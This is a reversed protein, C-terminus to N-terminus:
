RLRRPAVLERRRVGAALADSRAEWSLVGAMAADIKDPSGPREKCLTWMPRGEDDKVNLASRCANRIHVAMVPDGDNTVDGARMATAYNRVAWAIARPRNTHWELVRKDTWRGQWREVLREIRQPDIYVRWVDWRAFAEVMTGDVRDFDHEYDADASVPREVIALPWQHGTEVDTAVVALADDFRAGDVGITVINGSPVQRSLTLGSWRHRDFARGLSVTAQNLYYRRADSPDTDPDQIEDAIREVDVWGGRTRSSEGYAVELADLLALRDSLDKVDPTERTDYLIGSSGKEAARATLDAVSGDAPEPANQLEYTWGDGKGVNRRLTAALAIGGNARKWAETQDLVAHSLPQGERSGAAATVPEIRGPRGHLYVRSRGLDIGHRSLTQDNAALREYLWVMVNDTQDESVAALQVWPSPHPRGVPQGDNGWESFLVPHVLECYAVYGGEPSKGAGKPRRLAARRVRRRGTRPDIEYLRVLRGRQENTLTLDLDEEVLDGLRWGLSCVQGPWLPRFM